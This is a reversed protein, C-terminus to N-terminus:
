FALKKEALLFFNAFSRGRRSVKYIEADVISRPPLRKEGRFVKFAWKAQLEFGTFFLGNTLGVMALNELDPHFTYKYLLIPFKDYKNNFKLTRLVSEDFFDLCLKYGTCFLVVDAKEVSGDHLRVGDAEFQAITGRRPRIKGLHACM